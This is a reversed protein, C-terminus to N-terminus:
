ARGRSDGKDAQRARFLKREKRVVDPPLVRAGGLLSAMVYVQAAREVMACVGLADAPTSGVGVLGHNRLFAAKRDGLARVAREAMERTGSMGYEAVEVAGGVFVVLEDLVPPLARGVVALVSAYTSHTHMVAGVDPRAHYVALHLPLESSPALGGDVVTGVSDVVVIDEPRLTAYPRQSPTVAILARGRTVPLRMSVNGAMGTVLGREGMERAAALVARREALWRPTTGSTRTM